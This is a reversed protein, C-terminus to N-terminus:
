KVTMLKSCDREETRGCGLTELYAELEKDGAISCLDADSCV